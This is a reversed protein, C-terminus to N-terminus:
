SWCVTWSIPHPVDEVYAQPGSNKKQAKPDSSSARRSKKPKTAVRKAEPESGSAANRQLLDDLVKEFAVRKLEPDSIAAVAKEAVIVLSSYDKEEAL